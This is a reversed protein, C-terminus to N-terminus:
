RKWIITKGVSKAERKNVFVKNGEVEGIVMSNASIIAGSHIHAGKLIMSRAGIWCNDEITVEKDPNIIEGFENYIPHYDSDFVCVDRGLMVHNGIKMKKHCILKAGVGTFFYGAEFSAGEDVSITNGHAIEFRNNAIFTGNNNVRLLTRANGRKYHPYYNLLVNGHLIIKAKPELQLDTGKCPLLFADKDRQINKCFYNYRFFKFWDLYKAARKVPIWRRHCAKFIKKKEILVGKISKNTFSKVAKELGSREVLEFFERRKDPRKAAEVYAPNGSAIESLNRRELYLKEGLNNLFEKGKPTNVVLASVGLKLDKETVGRIGWFDGMTIDAVNKGNKIECVYCSERINLNKHIFCNNIDDEWRSIFKEKGNEFRILEGFDEWAYKDSKDRYFVVKSKEKNEYLRIKKEQMKPSPVGRCIFDVTILEEYDKQLYKKLAAIQCPTGTFLVKTGTELLEKTKKYIGATDSQFYKSGMIKLLGDHNNSYMHFASCFDDTYASGIIYGGCNLTYEALVHYVGGSTSERRIVDDRNWAAYAEKVFEVQTSENLVPCHKDCLGCGICKKKDIHPYWFGEDNTEFYIADVPCIDGCMKCGTCKDKLNEIM